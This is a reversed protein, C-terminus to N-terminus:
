AEADDVGAHILIDHAARRQLEEYAEVDGNIAKELLELNEADEVFDGSLSVDEGIDLLDAYVNTLEEAAKAREKM